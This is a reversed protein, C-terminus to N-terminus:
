IDVYKHKKFFALISKQQGIFVEKPLKDLDFWKWQEFKDPETVKPSGHWKKAIFNIHVYHTNDNTNTKPDNILHLYKLNVGIISTEEKLERKACAEFSEGWEFHGGPLCWSGFGTKGIRKGMLLKNEKNFLFINIGIKPYKKEPKNKQKM